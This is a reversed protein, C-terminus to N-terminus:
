ERYSNILHKGQDPPVVSESDSRNKHRTASLLQSLQIHYLSYRQIEVLRKLLCNSCHSYKLVIIGHHYKLVTRAESNVPAYQSVVSIPVFLVKGKTIQQPFPGEKVCVNGREKQSQREERLSM